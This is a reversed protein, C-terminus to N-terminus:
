GLEKKKHRLTATGSSKSLEHKWERRRRKEKTKFIIINWTTATITTTTTTTTRPFGHLSARCQVSFDLPADAAQRPDALAAFGLQLFVQQQHRMRMMSRRRRGRRRLLLLLILYLRRGVGCHRLGGSDLWGSLYCFLSCFDIWDWEDGDM